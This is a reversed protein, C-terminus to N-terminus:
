RDSQRSTRNPLPTPVRKPEATVGFRAEDVTLVGDNFVGCILMPVAGPRRVTKLAFRTVRGDVKSTAIHTLQGSPTWAHLGFGDAGEPNTLLILSVSFHDEHQSANAVIGLLSPRAALLSTSEPEVLERNFVLISRRDCCSVAYAPHETLAIGFPQTALDRLCRDIDDTDASVVDIKTSQEPHLELVEAARAVRNHGHLGARHAILTAAFLAANRVRPTGEEAIKEILPLTTKDGIRGLMQVLTPTVRDDHIEFIADRLVNMGCQTNLRWLYIAAASRVDAAEHENHLVHSYEEEHGKPDAEFLLQMARVPPLLHNDVRVNQRIAHLLAGPPRRAESAIRDVIDHGSTIRLTM